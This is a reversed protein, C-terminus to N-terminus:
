VAHLDTELLLQKAPGVVEWRVSWHTPLGTLDYHGRYIDAACPHEVEDGPSWPHFERGDDFTVMWGSARREILYRRWVPM